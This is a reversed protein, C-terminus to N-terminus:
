PVLRVLTIFHVRHSSLLWPCLEMKFHLCGGLPCSRYQVSFVVCQKYEQNSKISILVDHNFHMAATSLFLFLMINVIVYHLMHTYYSAVITSLVFQANSYGGLELEQREVYGTISIMYGYSNEASGFCLTIGVYQTNLQCLVIFQRRM